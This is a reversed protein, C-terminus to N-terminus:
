AMEAKPVRDRLLIAFRQLAAKWNQVPMTWKKAIHELALYLLKLAAEQTPFSGRTKIVKRLSMNLSEVANTTYIVKHIDAPYAFFPTLHEQNRRWMQSITPYTGDWKAAFEDLRLGAEEITSARYIPQLDAAVAKRQKWSVYNLSARVQHVICLQVQARPFVTEIADPFGTLGDVCAIFVDEVGRNKLETLVQLWYKAGEAQSAWLGLVEKNGQMNVGIAVHIARNRVHGAERIKVVLADMYVIPYVPDLPRNQWSKVEEMVEETVSSILAPSVEVKYIEELHGQIERTSMGRAYMSIIKDDFGTFRTQGKGIIKPEYSGNRDRPTELPMEGFDGKLTKATAGNRSNGSNNGAPDHKEYGLHVTMEAQMARELLAKTLQKLLGNEGIIDEPKKYDALLKDILRLDIAM